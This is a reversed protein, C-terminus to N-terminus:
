SYLIQLKSPGQNDITFDEGKANFVDSDGSQITRSIPLPDGFYYFYTTYGGGNDGTNYVKIEKGTVSEALITANEGSSINVVAM